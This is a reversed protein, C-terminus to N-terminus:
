GGAKGKHDKHEEHHIMWTVRALEPHAMVKGCCRCVMAKEFIMSERQGFVVDITRKGCCGLCYREEAMVAAVRFPLRPAQIEMEGRALAMFQRVAISSSTNNM